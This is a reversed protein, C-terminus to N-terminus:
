RGDQVTLLKKFNSEKHLKFAQFKYFVKGDVKFKTNFVKFYDQLIEASIKFCEQVKM